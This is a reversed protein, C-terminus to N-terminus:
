LNFIGIAKAITLVEKKTKVTNPIITGNSSKSYLNGCVLEYDYGIVQKKRAFGVCGYRITWESGGGFPMYNGKEDQWSSQHRRASLFRTGEQNYLLVEYANNIIKVSLKAREEKLRQQTEIPLKNFKM